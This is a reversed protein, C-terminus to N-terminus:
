ARQRTRVALVLWAALAAAKQEARWPGDVGERLRAVTERIRQEPQKLNQAALAFLDRDRWVSCTVGSRASAATLVHRFLQGELAHIRIHDNAIRQPDILSGVIVGARQVRYGAARYRRIAGTVSRAGFRKVAAVLRSLEPGAERASGFGAHYPQRCEPMEPDSLELRCSDVVRPAAAPGALLVASAWGSKVTFGIAARAQRPEIAHPM